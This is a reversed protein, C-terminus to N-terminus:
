PKIAMTDLDAEITELKLAADEWARVTRDMEAKLEAYELNLARLREPDQYTAADALTESVRDLRAALEAQRAELREVERVLPVKAQYLRQRALAEAKKRAEREVRTESKTQVKPVDPSPSAEGAEATLRKQWVEQFDRFNGPFIELGGQRVLLIKNAVANILHRDHSILCITGQYERLAQELMDRGPIDLHNSPEDLLLLNPGVMMIKALILRTKEGGSLVAVKKFVDDGRFLFSGLISRLRGPSLDGAVSDLEQLVTRDPNLEELQFQAFYSLIVGEGVRRTGAQFDATGALLKMLTTKGAGNPGLFALRDGRRLSLNLDCYVTKSGYRKTVGMLEILNEPSRSPRPLSFTLKERQPPPEIKDMKEVMKIRSQVQKARDKRVRNREIFREIQKIQERQGAYAAAQTALRKEKEKVYTAYNGSYSILQGRDIEVIRRVVNDLFVRDHSVLLLSSAATQLYNELWLLSDLDLHNTPEDLLLLDPEALLLRALVARMIWGGSFEEIPKYFDEEAFGLGTLIKRAQTELTYGGLNEFLEMLHSQRATLELLATEDRLRRASVEELEQTIQALEAEIARVEEATEMVLDLLHRGAFTMLDQPLYGLRLGKARHVAGAEPSEEALVLRILTTKGAGNPGILGVREGPNIYFSAERLVDQRGYFKSVNELTILSMQNLFTFGSIHEPDL